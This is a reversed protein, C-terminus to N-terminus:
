AKTDFLVDFLAQSVPFHWSHGQFFEGLNMHGRRQYCLAQYVMDLKDADRVLRAEPTASRDYDSWLELYTKSNPFNALIQEMARQEAAHKVDPSLLAASRKPLDTLVSEALDHILALRTLQSLDLPGSLGQALPDLNVVEALVVAILATAYTHDAISEPGAVGAFLWGTRPLRKMENIRDFLALVIDESPEV